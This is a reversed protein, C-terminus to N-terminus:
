PGAVSSPVVPVTCWATKGDPGPAVGSRRAIMAMIHLGRGHEEGPEPRQRRPPHAFGDDVEVLVEDGLHTLRLRVPPRGHVIANTVLESVLLELDGPAPASSWGAVSDATFRRAFAAGNLNPEILTESTALHGVSRVRAVLIAVDDSSGSPCLESVLAAPLDDLKGTWRRAIEGAREIREDTDGARTEVLGDTYLVLTSAPELPLDRQRFAVPGAGLPPGLPAALREVTGARVLLPPLHGANAFELSLSRSDVVAYVCSAIQDTGLERVRADVAELLDAPSLDLGAYARIVSRLQGMTAAARIGKGMVDGVVFATRARGLDIADFWDGGVQTGLVGPQYYTAIEFLPSRLSRNPALREQLEVAIDHERRAGARRSRELELNSRVRALLEIASFPKVLYDDAGAELGEVASDEGARATLLIVPTAATAADARLARLLGFGDLNPMMVDSLVVDPRISRAAELAASGDEATVVDYADALLGAVYRRMDPNDDAVLVTPRDGREPVPSWTPVPGAEDHLALWRMAEAVYTSAVQRGSGEDVVPVETVATGIPLRVTFTSGEGPASTAAISGGHLGVLEAVLALGIGSGEFTRSRAGEIRHFREFLHIQDEAQIGIGTDRVALEVVEEDRALRVSIGGEFTFKLANSLLNSVIKAWMERDVGVLAEIPHCEVVFDLGAREVASRFMEAIQLTEAGLDVAELRAETRGSELRSFDLLTNVLKLLRESSQHITEVRARQQPSLVDHRDNLADSTPGLILTLPTRFEHSVNTFFTTKARDLAALDEARQREAEYARANSLSASVQNAMLDIFGRYDEDLLRFRNLGAVLVGYPPAGPAGDVRVLLASTAPEDWGGRPIEPFREALDDVLLYPVGLLRGIPWSTAGTSVRLPAVPDGPTAGASSALHAGEDDFMYLLAFPLVTQDSALADSVAGFVEDETQASTLAAGLRRLVNMRRDGIVRETDESVVCLLGSVAGSEDSLPSYSFTHYTEEPYGGRELILLLSEDWSAVGSNLVTEIRPGIDSWIEAWVDAAPRGLAWPYKTGLTERRYKDNCLFTLEPGWAMWMSFRSTLVVHVISRLSQPWTAPPGLPTQEWDVNMMDAGVEGASQFLREM